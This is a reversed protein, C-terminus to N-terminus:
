KRVKIWGLTMAAARSLNVERRPISPSISSVPSGCKATILGTITLAWPVCVCVILPNKSASAHM